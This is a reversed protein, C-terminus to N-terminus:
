PTIHATLPIEIAAKGGDPPAFQASAVRALICSVAEGPMGGAGSPKASIVEGDKGLDAKVRLTAGQKVSTPDRSLAKNLCRRFGAAMGAVVPAANAVNGGSVAAGGIAVRVTPGAVRGPASGAPAGPGAIGGGLGPHHSGQLGGLHLGSPGAASPAGGLLGGEGAGDLSGIAATDLAELERAIQAARPDVTASPSAPATPSAAPEAAPAGAITITIPAAVAGGCAALGALALAALAVRRADM